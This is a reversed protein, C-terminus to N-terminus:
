MVTSRTSGPHSGVGEGKVFITFCVTKLSQWGHTAIVTPDHPLVGAIRSTGWMMCKGKWGWGNDRRAFGKLWGSHNNSSFYSPKRAIARIPPAIRQDLALSPKPLDDVPSGCIRTQSKRVM